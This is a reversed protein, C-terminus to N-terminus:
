GDEDFFKVVLKPKKKESQIAELVEEDLDSDKQVQSRTTLSGTVDFGHCFICIEENCVQAPWHLTGCKVWLISGPPYDHDEDAM